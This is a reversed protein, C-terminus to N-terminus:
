AVDAMGGGRRQAMRAMGHARDHAVRTMALPECADAAVDHQGVQGVLPRDGRREVARVAHLHQARHRGGVGVGRRRHPPHDVDRGRREGRIRRRHQQRQRVVARLQVDVGADRAQEMFELFPHLRDGRAQRQQTGRLVQLVPRPDHRDRQRGADQRAQVMRDVLHKRGNRRRVDARDRRFQQEIIRPGASRADDADFPRPADARAVNGIREALRSAPRDDRALQRAVCPGRRQQACAETFTVRAQDGIEVVHVVGPQDVDLM